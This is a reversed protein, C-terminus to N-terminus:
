SENKEAECWTLVARERRRGENENRRTETEEGKVKERRRAERDSGQGYLENGGEIRGEVCM